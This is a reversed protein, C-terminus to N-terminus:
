EFKWRDIDICVPFRLSGDKTKGFHRITVLRGKLDERREWLDKAFEVTGRIGAKSPIDKLIFAGAVLEGSGTEESLVDQIEYEETIFEKIKILDKTRKNQYPASARRAILGEYGLKSVYHNSLYEIPEDWSGVIDTVSYAVNKVSSIGKLAGVHFEDSLYQKRKRATLYPKSSDFIDYVHYQLKSSLETMQEETPNQKRCLSMLADFQDKYDHNYLEGDLTITPNTAFFPALIPRLFAAAPVEKGTRSLIHDKSITLRMGDLKADFIWDSPDGLQKDSLKSKDTALMPAFFKGGAEKIAAAEEISECYGEALKKTIRAICDADAQSEPTTENVKGINKGKLVSVQKSVSAGDVLGTHIHYINAERTIQYTRTKGKSDIKFLEAYEM